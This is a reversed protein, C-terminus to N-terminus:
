NDEPPAPVPHGKPCQQTGKVVYLMSAYEGDSLYLVGRVSEGQWTQTPLSGDPISIHRRLEDNFSQSVTRNYTNDCEGEDFNADAPYDSISGICVAPGIMSFAGTVPFNGAKAKYMNAAKYIADTVLAARVAYARDQIGRYATIAIAILVGLIVIVVLLEVITFGYQKYRLGM